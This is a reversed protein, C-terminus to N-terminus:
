LYEERTIIEKYNKIPWEINIKKDNWAIEKEDEPDWYNSVKFNIKAYNSKVFFANACGEPIYLSIHSNGSLDFAQWMMYTKSNKRMDLVVDYIDGDLVELLKGQPKKEQIHFGRLVNKKSFSENEQIFEMELGNKKFIDKDYKIYIEDNVKIHHIIYLGDLNTEEIQLLKNEM